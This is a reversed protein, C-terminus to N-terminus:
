AAPSTSLIAGGGEGFRTVKRSDLAGKAVNRTGFALVRSVLAPFGLIYIRGDDGRSGESLLHSTVATPSGGSSLFEDGLRGLGELGSSARLFYAM